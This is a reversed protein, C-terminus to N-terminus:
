TALSRGTVQFTSKCQSDNDGNKEMAYLSIQM